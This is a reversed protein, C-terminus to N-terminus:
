KFLVSIGFLFKNIYTIGQEMEYPKLTILVLDSVQIKPSKWQKEIAEAKDKRKKKKKVKKKAVIRGSLTALLQHPKRVRASQRCPPKQRKWLKARPIKKKGASTNLAPVQQM